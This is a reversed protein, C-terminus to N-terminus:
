RSVVFTVDESIDLGGDHALCRLVYTGPESFTVQTVWKGEPPTPPTVWGPSWPSNGGDRLDEWTDFQPPDFTVNGAVGRYVLWALRLGHAASPTGAQQDAAASSPPPMPRPKPTGDDSAFASLTVAQGVKAMRSPEGEVRLVPRTNDMSEAGAASDIGGGNNNQIVTDDMFYDPKLTAYARETKGHTTLSWVLEKNGFDEPVRIRLLFRSQRPLFHTPQGQDPGGPEINNDPGVPVDLEEEFNRNFYGFVLNFSGDPNQEWGEYAPTATHGTLSVQATVGSTAMLLAGIALVGCAGGLPRLLRSATM